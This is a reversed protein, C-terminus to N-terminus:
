KLDKIIWEELLNNRKIIEVLLKMLRRQEPWVIYDDIEEASIWKHESHEHNLTISADSSLEAGFAPIQHIIDNKYDYFQNVSPISWFLLPTLGTEEQLERLAADFCIENEKAKGGVMRWQNAYRTNESRKLILLSLDNKDDKQYPYVDILRSM